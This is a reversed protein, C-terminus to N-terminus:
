ELLSQSGDKTGRVLTTPYSLATKTKIDWWILHCNACLRKERQPKPTEKDKKTGGGGSGKALKAITLQQSAITKQQNAVTETLTKIRKTLEKVVALTKDNVQQITENSATTSAEIGYLYETLQDIDEGKENVGHVGQLGGRGATEEEDYNVEEDYKEIFHEKRISGL